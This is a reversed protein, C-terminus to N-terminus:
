NISRVRVTLNGSVSLVQAEPVEVRSEQTIPESAIIVARYALEADHEVHPIGCIECDRVGDRELLYLSDRFPFGDQHRRQDFSLQAEFAQAGLSRDTACAERFRDKEVLEVLETLGRTLVQRDEVFADRLKSAM